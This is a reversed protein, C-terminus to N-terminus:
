IIRQVLKPAHELWFARNWVETGIDDRTIMSTAAGFCEGDRMWYFEPISAKGHVFDRGLDSLAWTCDGVKNLLGVYALRESRRRFDKIPPNGTSEDAFTIETGAQNVKLTRQGQQEQSAYHYLARLHMRDVTYKWTPYIKQQCWMECRPSEDLQAKRHHKEILDRLLKLATLIGARKPNEKDLKNAKRYLKDHFKKLVSTETLIPPENM